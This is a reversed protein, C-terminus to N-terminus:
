LHPLWAAMISSSSLMFCVKYTGRERRSFKKNKNYSNHQSVQQIAAAQLEIRGWPSALRVYGTTSRIVEQLALLPFFGEVGMMVDGWFDVWFFKSFFYRGRVWGHGQSKGGVVRRM